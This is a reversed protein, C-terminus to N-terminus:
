APAVAARAAVLEAYYRAAGTSFLGHWAGLAEPPMLRLRAFIHRAFDVPSAPGATILNGDTVAPEDRYLGAGRYGSAKLYGPASSTHARADLLGEVALGFTAGCIAAVPAGADLFARATAAFARNGGTDWTSAGPLILMQSGAPDLEALAQAPQITLGGMTTVPELTLAVTVVEYGGDHWVPTNINAVAYGIEWDALTDYVAMHVLKNMM